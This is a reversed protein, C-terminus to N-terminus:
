VRDRHIEYFVKMNLDESPGTQIIIYPDASKGLQNGRLASALHRRLKGGINEGKSTPCVFKIIQGLRDILSLSEDDDSDDFIITHGKHSKFVIREPVGTSKGDFADEPVEPVKEKSFWEQLPSDEEGFNAMKKSVKPGEGPASAFYVPKNEDNDEFFVYVWTGPLPPTFFGFDEGCGGIFAPSAWPLVDHELFQITKGKIGHLSPIRIRVRGMKKPDNAYEVRAKMIGLNDKKHLPNGKEDKFFRM